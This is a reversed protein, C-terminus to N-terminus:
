PQKAEPKEGGKGDGPPAAAAQAAAKRLWDAKLKGKIVLNDFRIPGYRGGLRLGGDRIEADTKSLIPTRNVVMQLSGTQAVAQLHYKKNTEIPPVPTDTLLAFSFHKEGLVTDKMIAHRREGWRKVEDSHLLFRYGSPLRSDYFVSVIVLARSLSPITVDAEISVTGEFVVNKFAAIFNNPWGSEPALELEGDVIVPTAHVFIFDQLQAEDSFDYTAQLTNDHVEVNGNFLSAVPDSPKRPAAPPKPKADEALAASFLAVLLMISAPVLVRLLAAGNRIM